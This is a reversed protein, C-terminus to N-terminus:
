HTIIRPIDQPLRTLLEYNIQQSFDSFSSVAIENDEQNGILVVEEVTKIDMVRTKWTIIRQLSNINMKDKELYHALIEKTPFFGYQLIGIRSMDLQTNPYRISASSSAIHWKPNVWELKKIKKQIAKFLTQQDTIREHNSIDEAGALHTCIGQLNIYRLNKKVKSLVTDMMKIEFGTRNMGTEMEIHINAKMELKKAIQIVADLRDLEFVYFHIGNEIAWALAENEIYGMILLIYEHNPLAKTVKLAEETNFVSFHRIGYKHALPCYHKIGHGYANRKVVSSFTVAEGLQNHIFDINNKIAGESLEIYSTHFM